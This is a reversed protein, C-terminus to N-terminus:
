KPIFQISKDMIELLSFMTSGIEDFWARGTPTVSKANNIATTTDKFFNDINIKSPNFSGIENKLICVIKEKPKKKPPGTYIGNIDNTEKFHFLLWVEFCPNSFAININNDSAEQAVSNLQSEDWRDRDIVIWLQDTSRIRERSKHDLLSSLVHRPASHSGNERKVVKVKVRSDNIKGQLQEFYQVETKEGEAAIYFITPDRKNTTREYRIPERPM